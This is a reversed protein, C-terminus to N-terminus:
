DDYHEPMLPYSFSKHLWWDPIDQQSRIKGQLFDLALDATHVTNIKQTFTPGNM